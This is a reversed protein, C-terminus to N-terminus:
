ITKAMYGFISHRAGELIPRFNKKKPKKGAGLFNYFIRFINLAFFTKKQM